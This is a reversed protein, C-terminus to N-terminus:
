RLAKLTDMAVTNLRKYSEATEESPTKGNKHYHHLYAGAEAQRRVQDVLVNDSDKQTTAENLKGTEM